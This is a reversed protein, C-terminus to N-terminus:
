GFRDAESWRRSHSVNAFPLQGTCLWIKRL